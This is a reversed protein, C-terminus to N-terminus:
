KSCLFVSFCGHDGLIVQGINSDLQTFSQKINFNANELILRIEDVKYHRVHFQFNEKSFPMVDENPTSCIFIGGPKLLAYFTALLESDFEVHEITEFSIIADFSNKELTLRRADECVFHTNNNSFFKNAYDIAGKDIDVGTVKANTANALMLSGYGIGCALDLVSNIGRGKLQDCAFQYRNKHDLRINEFSSAIQREGIQLTKIACAELIGKSAKIKIDGFGVRELLFRLRKENYGSKFVDSYTESYSSFKPNGTKQPGFIGAFASRAISTEDRLNHENWEAKIWQKAWYNTDPLSLKLAGGVSLIKFWDLLAADAEMTTLFAFSQNCCLDSVEGTVFCSLEWAKCNIINDDDNITYELLSSVINRIIIKHM